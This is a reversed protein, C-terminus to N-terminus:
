GAMFLVYERFAKNFINANTPHSSLPASHMLYIDTPQLIELLSLLFSRSGEALHRANTFNLVRLLSHLIASPHSNFTKQTM